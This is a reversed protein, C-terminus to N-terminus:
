QSVASFATLILRAHKVKFLSAKVAEDDVVEPDLVLMFALVLLELVSEDLEVLEVGAGAELVLEVSEDLEVLEVGAGALLELVSEDLEVLEVGAGPDPLVLVVSADLEVLEVGALLELVCSAEDESESESEFESELELLVEPLLVALASLPVELPVEATLVLSVEFLLLV